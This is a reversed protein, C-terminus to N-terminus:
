DTNARRGSARAAYEAVFFIPQAIFWLLWNGVVGLWWGNFHHVRLTQPWRRMHARLTHRDTLVRKLCVGVRLTERYTIKYGADHLHFALDLDEHIDGRLCVKNRVASWSSRPMAMNSGWLVYYGVIFRNVRFALQGQIWGNIKPLRVNYFYGGGTLAHNAHAPSAYFTTVRAVWDDPLVTDADIRAIIDSRATDFGANRAYVIGQTHERVVRVFPFSRAIAVTGDTSNNDVVIVEAPKTTQRAIAELCARLFREENYALVVISISKNVSNAAPM